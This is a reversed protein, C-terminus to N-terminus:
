GPAPEIMCGVPGLKLGDHQRIEHFTGIQEAKLEAVEKSGTWVVARGKIHAEMTYVVAQEVTFKFVERLVHIVFEITHLDDNLIIVHYPPLQKAKSKQRPKPRVTTVTPEDSESIDSM